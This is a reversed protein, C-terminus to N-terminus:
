LRAAPIKSGNLWFLMLSTPSLAQIVTTWKLRFTNSQSSIHAPRELEKVGSRSFCKKM